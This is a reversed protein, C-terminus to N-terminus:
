ESVTHNDIYKQVANRFFAKFDRNERTLIESLKRFNEAGICDILTLDEGHIASQICTRIFTNVPTNQEECYQKIEEYETLKVNLPIRKMNAKTWKM